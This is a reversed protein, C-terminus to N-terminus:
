DSSSFAFTIKAARPRPPWCLSGLIASACTIEVRRSPDPDGSRIVSLRRCEESPNAGLPDIFPICSYFAVDLLVGYQKGEAEAITPPEPEGLEM